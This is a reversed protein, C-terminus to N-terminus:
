LNKNKKIKSLIRNVKRKLTQKDYLLYFIFKSLKNHNQLNVIPNYVLSPDSILDILEKYNFNFCCDELKFISHSLNYLTQQNKSILDKNMEDIMKSIKNHGIDDEFLIPILPLKDVAKSSNFYAM